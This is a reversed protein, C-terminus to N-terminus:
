VKTDFLLICFKFLKFLIIDPITPLPFKERGMLLGTNLLLLLHTM